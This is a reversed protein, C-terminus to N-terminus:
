GVKMHGNDGLYTTIGTGELWARATQDEKLFANWFALSTIKIIDEHQDRNPNNDLKGRTGNYVM